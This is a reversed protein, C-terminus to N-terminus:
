NMLKQLYYNNYKSLSYSFTFQHIRQQKYSLSTMSLNHTKCIERLNNTNRPKAETQPFSQPARPKPSPSKWPEQGAGLLLTDRIIQSWWRKERDESYLVKEGRGKNLLNNTKMPTRLASSCMQQRSWLLWKEKVNWSEGGPLSVETEWGAGQGKGSYVTVDMSSIIGNLAFAGWKISEWSNQERVRDWM